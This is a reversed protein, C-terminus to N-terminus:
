NIKNIISSLLRRSLNEDSQNIPTAAFSPALSNLSLDVNPRYQFHSRLFYPVKLPPDYSRNNGQILVTYVVLLTGKDHMTQRTVKTGDKLVNDQGWLFNSRPSALKVPQDNCEYPEHYSKYTDFFKKCDKSSFRMRYLELITKEINARELPAPIEDDEVGIASYEFLIYVRKVRLFVPDVDHSIDDNGPFDWPERKKPQNMEHIKKQIDPAYLWADVAVFVLMIALLIYKIKM